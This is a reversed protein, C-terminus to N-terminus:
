LSPEPAEGRARQAADFDRFAALRTRILGAWRKLEIELRTRARGHEVRSVRRDDVAAILRAGSVADLIEVEVGLVVSTKMALGARLRLTGPAAADVLEFETALHERLAADFDQALGPEQEGEGLAVVPDVIMRQYGSFDADADIFILRAQGARGPELQDYSELFGLTQQTHSPGDTSACALATMVLAISAAFHGSRAATSAV